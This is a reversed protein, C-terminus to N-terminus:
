RGSLPIRPNIRGRSSYGAYNGPTLMKGPAWEKETIMGSGGLYHQHGFDRRLTCMSYAHSPSEGGESILFEKTWHQTPGQNIALPM